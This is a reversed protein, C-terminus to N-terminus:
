SSAGSKLLIAEGGKEKLKGAARESFATAKVRIARELTGSSLVKYGKLTIYGDEGEKMANIRGLNTEELIQPRWKTFGKRKILWPAKATMWTFNHKRAGANGVGGRDGAGRANKINGKGWRRTGFYKRNRKEKRVVM